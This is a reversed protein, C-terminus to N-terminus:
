LDENEADGKPTGKQGRAIRATGLVVYQSDTRVEDAGRCVARLAARLEARQNTQQVGAM